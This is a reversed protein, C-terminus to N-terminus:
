GATRFAAGVMLGDRISDAIGHFGWRAYRGVQYIGHEELKGLCQQKWQSGPWSWTYAVNIWTPDVVEPEEIFGWDQLEKVVLDGYRATEEEKPRAGEGFLAEFDAVSLHMHRASVEIIVEIKQKKKAM